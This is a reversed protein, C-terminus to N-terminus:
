LQQCKISTGGATEIDYVAVIDRYGAGINTSGSPDCLETNCVDVIDAAVATIPAACGMNVQVNAPDFYSLHISGVGSTTAPNATLVGYSVPFNGSNRLQYESVADIIAAVDQKRQNNHSNRILAPIVNFILLFILGAIGLVILTEIVTFGAQNPRNMLKVVALSAPKILWAM